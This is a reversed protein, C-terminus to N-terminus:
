GQAKLWAQTVQEYQAMEEPNLKRKWGKLEDAASQARKEAQAVKKFQEVAVDVLTRGAM